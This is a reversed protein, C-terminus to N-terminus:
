TLYEVFLERAEENGLLKETDLKRKEWLNKNNRRRESKFFSELYCLFLEKLLDEGPTIFKYAGVYRTVSKLIGRAFRKPGNEFIFEIDNGREYIPMISLRERGDIFLEGKPRSALLKAQEFVWSNKDSIAKIFNIAKGYDKDLVFIDIDNNYRYFAGKVGAIAVGGYVWYNIEEKELSPLLIKFVPELHENM